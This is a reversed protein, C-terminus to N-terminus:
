KTQSLVPYLSPNFLLRALRTDKLALDAVIEQSKGPDASVFWGYERDLAEALPKISIMSSEEGKVPKLSGASLYRLFQIFAVPFGEALYEMRATKMYRFPVENGKSPMFDVILSIRNRKAPSVDGTTSWKATLWAAASGASAETFIRSAGASEIAVPMSEWFPIPVLDSARESTKAMLIPCALAVWRLDKNEEPVNFPLFAIRIPSSPTIPVKSKKKLCAFQVSLMIVAFFVLLRFARPKHAAIHYDRPMGFHNLM